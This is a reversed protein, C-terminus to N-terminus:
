PELWRSLSEKQERQYTRFEEGAAHEALNALSAEIDDLSPEAVGYLECFRRLHKFDAPRNTDPVAAITATELESKVKSPEPRLLRRLGAAASVFGVHDRAQRRNVLLQYQDNLLAQHQEAWRNYVVRALYARQLQYSTVKEAATHRLLYCNKWHKALEGLEDEIQGEVQSQRRILRTEEDASDRQM